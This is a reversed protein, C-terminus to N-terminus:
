KRSEKKHRRAESAAIMADGFTPAPLSSDRKAATKMSKYTKKCHEVWADTKSRSRSRAPGRGDAHARPKTGGNPRPGRASYSPVPTRSRSRAVVPKKSRPKSDYASAAVRGRSAVRPKSAPRGPKPKSGARQPPKTRTTHQPKKTKPKTGSPKHGRASPAKTGRGGHSVDPISASSGSDSGSGSDSDSGSETGSGSGSETGSGSDTGSGSGSDESASTKSRQSTTKKAKNKSKKSKASSAAVRGSGSGSGSGRPSPSRSRSKEGGSGAKDGFNFLSGSSKTDDANGAGDNTNDDDDGSDIQLFTKVAKLVARAQKKGVDDGTGDDTDGNVADYTTQALKYAELDNKSADFVGKKAYEHLLQVCGPNSKRIAHLYVSFLDASGEPLTDLYEKLHRAKTFPGLKFSM